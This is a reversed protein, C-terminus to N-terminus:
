FFPDFKIACFVIWVCFLPATILPGIFSKALPKSFRRLPLFCTFYSVVFLAGFWSWPAGLDIVRMWYESVYFGSYWFGCFVALIIINYFVLRFMKRYSGVSEGLAVFFCPTLVLWAAFLLPAISPLLSM